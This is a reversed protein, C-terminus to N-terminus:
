LVHHLHLVREVLFPVIIATSIFPNGFFTHVVLARFSHSFSLVVFSFSLPTRLHFVQSAAQLPFPRGKYVLVVSSARPACLGISAYPGTYQAGTHWSVHSSSPERQKRTLDSLFSVTCVPVGIHLSRVLPSAVSPSYGRDVM